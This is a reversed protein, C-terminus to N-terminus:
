VGIFRCFLSIVLSGGLCVLAMKGFGWKNKGSVFGCVGGWIM